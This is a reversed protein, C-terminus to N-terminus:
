RRNYWRGFRTCIQQFRGFHAEMLPLWLLELLGRPISFAAKIRIKTHRNLRVTAQSESAVQQFRM